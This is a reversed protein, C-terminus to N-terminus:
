RWLPQSWGLGWPRGWGGKLLRQFLVPPEQRARIGRWQVNILAELEIADDLVFRAVPVSGSLSAQIQGLSAPVM